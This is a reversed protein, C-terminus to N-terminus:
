FLLQLRSRFGSVEADGQSGTLNNDFNAWEYGFSLKLTNGRLYLNGGVYYATVEDYRAGGNEPARRFVNSIDAGRGGDADLMSYRAVLELTDNVKFSPLLTFGIPNADGAGGLDGGLIEALVNIDGAAYNAYLGWVLDTEGNTLTDPVQGASVGADLKGNAVDGTWGVQAWLAISDTVSSDSVSGQVPNTAAVTFYAGSEYEGTLFIGARRAGLDIDETFYRTSVSREVTAIKSSSTTEEYGFPVKQYGIALVHQDSLGYNIVAKEVEGSGAAGNAFNFNLVGELDDTFKATAGLYVRRLFLNLEDDPNAANDYDTSLYDLQAHIRGSLTLSQVAKEKAKVQPAAAPAATAKAPAPAAALSGAEASSLVGKSVLLDVLGREGAGAASAAEAQTIVGKSVLLDALATTSGEMSEIPLLTATILTAASLMKTLRQM